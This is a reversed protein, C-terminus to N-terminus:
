KSDALVILVSKVNRFPCDAICIKNRIRLNNAGFAITKKRNSAGSESLKATIKAM